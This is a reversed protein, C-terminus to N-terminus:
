PESTGATLHPKPHVDDANQLDETAISVLILRLIAILDQTRSRCLRDSGM